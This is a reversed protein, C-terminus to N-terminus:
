EQFFGQPATEYPEKFLDRDQLKSNPECDRFHPHLQIDFEKLVDIKRDISQTTQLAAPIVNSVM